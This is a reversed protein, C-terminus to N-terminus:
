QSHGELELNLALGCLGSRVTYLQAESPLLIVPAHSVSGPLRSTSRSRCQYGAAPRFHRRRYINDGAVLMVTSFQCKAIIAEARQTPVM